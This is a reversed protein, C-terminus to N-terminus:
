RISMVVTPPGLGTLTFQYAGIDCGTDGPFLTNPARNPRPVGDFDVSASALIEPPLPPDFDKPCIAQGVGPNTIVPHFNGAPEDVFMKDMTCEPGTVISGNEVITHPCAVPNQVMLTSLFMLTLIM